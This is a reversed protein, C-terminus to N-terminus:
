GPGGGYSIENGDADRYIVKELTTALRAGDHV